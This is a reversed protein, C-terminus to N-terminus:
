DQGTCAKSTDWVDQESFKKNTDRNLTRWFDITEKDPHAVSNIACGDRELVLQLNALARWAIKTDHHFGDEPDVVGADVLHRAICDLHDNSKDRSWHLPQGPNHKDNGAKSLRAVEALADPFYALCGSFLPVDKREKSDTPLM